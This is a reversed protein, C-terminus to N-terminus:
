KQGNKKNMYNLFDQLIVKAAFKDIIKKQNKSKKVVLKVKDLAEISSYGEDWFFIPLNIKNDFLLFDLNKTIDRISQCKKNLSSDDNKPLGVILGSIEYMELIRMIQIILDNKKAYVVKSALSFKKLPDSFAVGTKNTGIDLCMLINKNSIIKTLFENINCIIM